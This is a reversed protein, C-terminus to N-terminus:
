GQEQRICLNHACNEITAITHQGLEMAPLLELQIGGLNMVRDDESESILDLSHLAGREKLDQMGEIHCLKVQFLRTM